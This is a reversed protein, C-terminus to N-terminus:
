FKRCRELCIKAFKEKVGLSAMCTFDNGRKEKILKNKYAGNVDWPTKRQSQFRSSTFLSSFCSEFIIHLKALTLLNPLIQPRTRTTINIVLFLLVRICVSNLM